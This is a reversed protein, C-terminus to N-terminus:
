VILYSITEATMAWNAFVAEEFLILSSVQLGTMLVHVTINFLRPYSRCLVVFAMFAVLIYILIFEVIEKKAGQYLFGILSIIVFCAFQVIFFTKNRQFLLERSLSDTFINPNPLCYREIIRKWTEM